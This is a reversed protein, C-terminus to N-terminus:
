GAARERIGNPEVIRIPFAFWSLSHPAGHNRCWDSGRPRATATDGFELVVQEIRQRNRDGVYPTMGDAPEERKAEGDVV